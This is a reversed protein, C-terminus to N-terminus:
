MLKLENANEVHVHECKLFILVLADVKWIRKEFKLGKSLEITLFYTSVHM